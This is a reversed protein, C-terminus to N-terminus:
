YMEEAYKVSNWSLILIELKCCDCAFSFSTKSLLIFWKSDCISAWILNIRVSSSFSLITPIFTLFISCSSWSRCCTFCTEKLNRIELFDMRTITFQLWKPVLIAYVFTSLIPVVRDLDFAFLIRFVFHISLLEFILELFSRGILLISFGLSVINQCAFSISPLQWELNVMTEIGSGICKDDCEKIETPVVGNKWFFNIWKYM